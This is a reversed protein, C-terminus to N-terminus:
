RTPTTGSGTSSRTAPAAGANTGRYTFVFPDSVLQDTDALFKYINVNILIEYTFRM